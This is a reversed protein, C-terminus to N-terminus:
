RKGDLFMEHTRRLWRADLIRRFAEDREEGTSYYAEDRSLSAIVPYAEIMRARYWEPFQEVEMVRPAPQDAPEVWDVTM